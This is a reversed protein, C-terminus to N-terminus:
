KGEAKRRTLEFEINVTGTGFGDTVLIGRHCHPCSPAMKKNRWARELVRAAILHIVLGRDHALQQREAKVKRQSENFTDLIETLLWWGTVQAKCDRCRIIEGDPLMETRKHACEGASPYGYHRRKREVSFDGIEIVNSM